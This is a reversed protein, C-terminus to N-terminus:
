EAMVEFSGACWRSTNITMTVSVTKAVGPKVWVTDNLGAAPDGIAMPPRSADSAAASKM